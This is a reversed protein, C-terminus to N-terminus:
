IPIINLGMGDENPCHSWRHSPVGIVEGKAGHQHSRKCSPCTYTMVEKARDVNAHRAPVNM